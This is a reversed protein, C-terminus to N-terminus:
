TLVLEPTLPNTFLRAKPAAGLCVLRCVHVKLCGIRVMEKNPALMEEIM